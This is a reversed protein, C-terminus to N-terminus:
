IISLYVCKNLYICPYITKRHSLSSYYQLHLSYKASIAYWISPICWVKCVSPFIIQLLIFPHHVYNVHKLHTSRYMQLYALFLTPYKQHISLLVDCKNLYIFPPNSM